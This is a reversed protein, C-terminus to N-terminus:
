SQGGKRMLLIYRERLARFNKKIYNQAQTLADNNDIIGTTTFRRVAGDPYYVHSHAVGHANDQRVIQHWTNDILADYQVAFEIVDRGRTVFRTTLRDAESLASQFKRQREPM